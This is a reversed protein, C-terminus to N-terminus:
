VELEAKMKRERDRWVEEARKGRVRSKREMASVVREKEAKEETQKNILWVSEKPGHKLM